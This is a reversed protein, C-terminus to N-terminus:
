AGCGLEPLRPYASEGLAASLRERSMDGSLCDHVSLSARCSALGRGPFSLSVRQGGDSCSLEARASMLGGLSALLSLAPLAIAFLMLYWSFWRSYYIEFMVAAILAALYLLRSRWM